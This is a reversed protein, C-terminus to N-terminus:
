YAGFNLLACWFPFKWGVQGREEEPGAASALGFVRLLLAFFLFSTV